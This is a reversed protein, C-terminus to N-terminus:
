RSGKHIIIDSDTKLKVTVQGSKAQFQKSSNMYVPYDSEIEGFTTKAHIAADTGKPLDLEIKGFTTSVDIVAESPLM